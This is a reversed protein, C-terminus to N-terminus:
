DRSITFSSFFIIISIDEVYLLGFPSIELLGTPSLLSVFPCEDRDDGDEDRDGGGEDRTDGGLTDGDDVGHEPEPRQSM